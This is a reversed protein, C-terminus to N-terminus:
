RRPFRSAIVAVGVVAAGACWALAFWPQSGPDGGLLLERGTSPGGRGTM